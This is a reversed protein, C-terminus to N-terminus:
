ARPEPSQDLVADFDQRFRATDIQYATEFAKVLLEPSVPQVHEPSTTTAKSDCGSSSPPGL